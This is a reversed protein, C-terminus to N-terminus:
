FARAFAMRFMLLLEMLRISLTHEVRIVDAKAERERALISDGATTKSMSKLSTKDVHNHLDSLAKAGVDSTKVTIKIAGDDKSLNHTSVVDKAHAGSLTVAFTIVCAFISIFSTKLTNM